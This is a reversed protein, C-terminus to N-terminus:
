MELTHSCEICLKFGNKEIGPQAPKDCLFCSDAKEVTDVVDQLLDQVEKTHCPCTCGDLVCFAHNNFAGCVASIGEAKKLTGIM